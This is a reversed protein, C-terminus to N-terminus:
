VEGIWDDLQSKVPFLAFQAERLFALDSVSDGIALVLEESRIKLQEAVFRVALAKSTYPAMLALNAGNRHWQENKTLEPTLQEVLFDLHAEQYRERDAKISLYAAIGADCILRTRLPLQQEEILTEVRKNLASFDDHWQKLDYKKDLQALWLECPEGTPTLVLAGHSVIRYSNFGELLVRDMADRNRGTVPILLAGGAQFLGLLKRQPETIFSLLHGERNVAAGERWQGEQLKRETQFLTDDLDTFVIVRSDLAM